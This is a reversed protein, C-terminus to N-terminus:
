RKKGRVKSKRENPNRRGIGYSKVAAGKRGQQEWGADPDCWDIAKPAKPPKLQDERLVVDNNRRGGKPLPISFRTGRTNNKRSRM